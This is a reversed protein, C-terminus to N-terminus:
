CVQLIVMSIDDRLPAGGCFARVESLLQNVLAEPTLSRHAAFSACLREVGFFVGQPNEAETIGDTYLLLKDGIDLEISRQEFDVARQVGLVLGDADLPACGVGDSRLLLPQNHGANAYNLTRTEPLFKVYFMTIFLEAKSLDDYLLENLARLIQAPGIPVGSAKRTEARLTSRAESMVLAAGVSHGSVDAIVADVADFNEFFDFYDGGVHSAPVCVGALEVMPLRLPANPLLSLQIHRAIELERRSEEARRRETVDTQIGIYHTLKGADDVVPSILLENWFAAGGKRYNKLTIECGDGVLLAQRIQELAASDTEPGQLLHMSHGLLEERTYGTIRCLAPNVYVNPNGPKQADSIVVGVHVSEIARDRVRLADESTKRATIDHDVGRWKVLRANDDLIPAGTSETYIERGDKHRYQNVLHRFPQCSVTSLSPLATTWHDKNNVTLLDLYSKGLIEDPTFGLIDRVAGSSYIYRGQPDQEWLWEGAMEAVQRFREESATLAEKDRTQKTIDQQTALYHTIEGQVNRLPTITQLAWYLEGNKKRNQIEGRWESGNHITEWLRRYQDRTTIDSRLLCPSRGILEGAELGTLRTFCRNVYEIRGEKNSIMVAASSQEMAASLTLLQEEARRLKILDHTVGVYFRRGELWIEGISLYMPFISGDKRLGSVERGKGIIKKVGTDRYAALYDDHAEHYPSPMLMKVNQGLVEEQRHGFLREAGSSFLLIEGVESIVILADSMSDYILGLKAKIDELALDRLPERKRFKLLALGAGVRELSSWACIVEVMGGDKRRIRVGGSNPTWPGDYTAELGPGPDGRERAIEVNPLFPRGLLEDEQYGTFEEAAANMCRVVGAADLLCAGEEFADLISRLLSIEEM